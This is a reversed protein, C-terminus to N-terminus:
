ERYKSAIMMAFNAIDVAEKIIREKDEEDRLIEHALEGVEEMTRTILYAVTCEHWPSKHDNAQLVTEMKEAFWHVEERM